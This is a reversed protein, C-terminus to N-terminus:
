GGLTVMQATVPQDAKSSFDHHEPKRAIAALIDQKIGADSRGDRLASRLSVRDEHGLCLVLDGRATLRVRNCSECFHRSVASIVGVKVDSDGAQYYRAPGPGRQGQVPVLRSGYHARIHELIRAAPYYHVMNGAGATGVPMTEIFRLELGRELAFDLMSDIEHENVGKMVVMNIKIPTMGAAQAAEIGKIVCDLDGGCTIASFNDQDLSDLSINVRGIGAAQLPAAFRELLHGNTSLSLDAIGPLGTIMTALGALNRRLLPEGGTLRVKSVGLESFLRVLRAIEEHRLFDHHSGDVVAGAPRCYFCHYNCRDTVSIRLYDICRGFSDVLNPM